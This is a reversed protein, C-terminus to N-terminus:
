CLAHLLSAFYSSSSGTPYTEAMRKELKLSSDLKGYTHEYFSWREWLKRAKEAPFNSIAREFLAQADLSM